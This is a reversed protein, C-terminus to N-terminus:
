KMVIKSTKSGKKMIVLEGQAPAKVEMGQLNYYRVDTNVPESAVDEVGSLYNLLADPLVFSTDSDVGEYEGTAEDLTYWCYDNYNMMLRSSFGQRCSKVIVNNGERWGINETGLGEIMQEYTPLEEDSTADNIMDFYFCGADSYLFPMGLWGYEEENMYGSPALVSPISMVCNEDTIDFEICGEIPCANSAKLQAPTYENNYPNVLRVKGPNVSNQQIRVKWTFDAVTEGQALWGDIFETYGYDIWGAENIKEPYRMLTNAQTLFMYGAVEGTEKIVCVNLITMKPAELRQTEPNFGIVLPTNMPTMVYKQSGDPFLEPEGNEDYKPALETHIFQKSGTVGGSNYLGVVQNDITITNDAANYTGTIPDVGWGTIIVSEGEIDVTCSGYGWGGDGTMDYAEQAYIGAVENAARTSLQTTSTNMKDNELFRYDTRTLESLKSGNLNMRKVNAANASVGMLLSLAIM